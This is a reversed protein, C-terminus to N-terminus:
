PRTDLVSFSWVDSNFPSFFLFLSLIPGFALSFCFPVAVPVWKWVSNRDTPYKTLNKLLELLALQICEKTSVNTYCLLEHLAERIDRSSDQLSHEILQGSILASTSTQLAEYNTLFNHNYKFVIWDCRWYPLSLTWSTKESPSTLRSRDCCMSPSCGCRRSKMM